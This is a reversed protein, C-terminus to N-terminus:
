FYAPFTAWLFLCISPFRPSLFMELSTLLDGAISLRPIFRAVLSDPVGRLYARRQLVEPANGCHERGVSALWTVVPIQHWLPPRSLSGERPATCLISSFSSFSLWSVSLSARRSSQHSGFYYPPRYLCQLLEMGVSDIPPQRAQRATRQLLADRRLVCCGHGTNRLWM